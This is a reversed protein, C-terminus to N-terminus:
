PLKAVNVIGKVLKVVVPTDPAAVNTEPTNFM